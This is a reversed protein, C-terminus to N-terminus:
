ESCLALIFSTKSMYTRCHSVNHKPIVEIEIAKNLLLIDPNHKRVHRCLLRHLPGHSRLPRERHSATAVLHKQIPQLGLLLDLLEQVLYELIFFLDAQFLKFIDALVYCRLHEEGDYDKELVGDGAGLVEEAVLVVVFGVRVLALPLGDWGPGAAPGM